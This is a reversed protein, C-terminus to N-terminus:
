CQEYFVAMGKQVWTLHVTVKQTILKAVVDRNHVDITCITMVKQRDGKNLEGILLQILANLQQIQKKNYDKLANEYGEELRAFAINVETTWWIQSGCLAVQAPFDFLWQDRPKEEYYVVAEGMEHLITAKMADLLRNLWVEVQLCLMTHQMIMDYLCFPSNYVTLKQYPVLNNAEFQPLM